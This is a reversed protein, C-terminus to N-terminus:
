PPPIAPDVWWTDLQYGSLAAQEPHRLHRWYAVWQTKLHFLPIVLDASMLVRDLARVAAVFTGRDAARLMAEIMADAAPSRLGPYNFSGKRDAQASSWRFLQENGPSLSAPWSYQILDFDFDNLRTQYLVRDLQRITLSIGARELSAAFGLLLREQDRSVTLAEISVPQGTAANVLHRDKYVYGAAKLLEIAKRLNTRNAGTGDGVPLRYSGAMVEPKVEQGFPALLAQETADAPRGAASLESREFYSATRAYLGHYLTRNLSEFDFLHMLAQRVRPDAFFPRRLNLVLGSMGAPLGLPLEAKVVKGSAIAPFDYATTWRSPDGEDALHVAGSKFAEFLAGTDRGYEFRIRDFNARGRMVALDRGWYGPNRRYGITRGAEVAAVVYPGSGIPAVLTTQEFTAPDVAHKPLIPMLGIILPMERDSGQFVFRIAREGVAETRVVKKYYTQTNPRGHERLLELSFAVDEITVPMGDSFRAEPRLVFTVASRDEPVDITEALLGYLSFPEDQSREMLSEYVYGRIGAASVGNVILPNLSDFTGYASLRLEGGKPADPNAYAFHTFGPAYALTGHMAIGHAPEAGAPCQLSGCLATLLAVFAFTYQQM